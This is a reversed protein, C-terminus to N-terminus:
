SAQGFQLHPGRAVKPGFSESTLRTGFAQKKPGLRVMIVCVNPTRLGASGGM